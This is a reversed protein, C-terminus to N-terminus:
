PMTVSVEIPRRNRAPTSGPTSRTSSNESYEHITLMRVASRVTCCSCKVSRSFTDPSARVSGNRTMMMATVTTMYPPKAVGDSTAAM